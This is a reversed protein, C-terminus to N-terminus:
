SHTLQAERPREGHKEPRKERAPICFLLLYLPVLQVRERALLGFNALTSFAVIFLCSYLLAFAVYPRRRLSGVAALGHRLRFLSFLLLFTGELATALAQTNHAENPFPRFLVTIAGIPAKLPEGIIPSPTFGSGGEGTREQLGGVVTTQSTTDIGAQELFTDTKVVLFVAMVALGALFFAKVLPGLQRLRESPPRILYAAALALGIMGAVHPRVFSALWLGLGVGAIGRLTAGSLIRAAGYAAIGVTFMMWAEKGISSPWFLLSPLFFLLRAYLRANGEPLAVTFARYFMFLGWFGLWSYVLYGGLRSTGILTYLIGTLFRIFNTSLLNPLGSDFNGALFNESIRVGHNHYSAADVSGGYVESSVFERVLASLLKLVLAAALLWFLTDSGERKAQRSLVPLSVAVLIPGIFLPAYTEYGTTDMITLVGVVWAGILALGLGTLGNPSWVVRRVAEM